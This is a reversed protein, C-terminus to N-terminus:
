VRESKISRIKSQPIVLVINFEYGGSPADNGSITLGSNIFEVGADWPVYEGDEDGILDNETPDTSSITFLSLDSNGNDEWDGIALVIDVPHKVTYTKTTRTKTATTM